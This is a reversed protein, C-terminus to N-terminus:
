ATDKQQDSKQYKTGTLYQMARNLEATVLMSLLWIAPLRESMGRGRTLGGSTKLSRNLVQEIVLNPSLGAWFHDSSCIVHLENMFHKHLGPHTVHIQSMTQLYLYVSM